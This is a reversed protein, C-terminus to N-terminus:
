VNVCPTYPYCILVLQNSSETIYVDVCSAAWLKVNSQLKDRKNASKDLAVVRGQLLLYRYCCSCVTVLYETM